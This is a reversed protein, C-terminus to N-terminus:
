VGIRYLIEGSKSRIMHSLCSFDADFFLQSGKVCELAYIGLNVFDFNQFALKRNFHAVQLILDGAQFCAELIEVVRYLIDFLFALLKGRTDGFAFRQDLLVGLLEIIHFVIALKIREVLLKFHL